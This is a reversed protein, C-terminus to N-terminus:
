DTANLRAGTSAPRQGAQVFLVAKPLHYPPAAPPPPPLARPAPSPPSDFSAGAGGRACTSQGGGGGLCPCPSRCRGFCPSWMCCCDAGHAEAFLGACGGGVGVCAGEGFVSWRLAASCCVGSGDGWAHERVNAPPEESFAREVGSPV